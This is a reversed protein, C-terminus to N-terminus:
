RGLVVDNHRKNILQKKQKVDKLNNYIDMFNNKDVISDSTENILGFTTLDYSNDKFITNLTKYVTLKDYYPTFLEVVRKILIYQMYGRLGNMNELMYGFGRINSLINDIDDCPLLKKFSEEYERPCVTSIKLINDDRHYTFNSKDKLEIQLYIRGYKSVDSGLAHVLLNYYSSINTKNPIVSSVIINNSYKLDGYDSIIIIIDFITDDFDITTFPNHIRLILKNDEQKDINYSDDSYNNFKISYM